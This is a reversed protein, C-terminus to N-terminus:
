GEKHEQHKNLLEDIDKKPIGNEMLKKVLRESPKGRPVHKGKIVSRSEVKGLYEDYVEETITDEVVFEYLANTEFKGTQRDYSLIESIDALRRKGDPYIKMRVALPFADVVYDLILNDSLDSGSQKYMGLIRKGFVEINDAHLTVLVQHGTISADIVAVTEAGKIEQIILTEPTFTLSANVCREMDMNDIQPKIEWMITNNLGKGNADVKRLNMEDIEACTLTRTDDAINQAISAMTATKGSNTGGYFSMSVKGKLCLLILMYGYEDLTGNKLLFDKQFPKARQKRIVMQVVPRNTMGLPGATEGVPRRAVPNSMISVRTNNGLRLRVFPTDPRIVKEAKVNQCMKQAITYLQEPSDFVKDYAYEIGNVVIRVDNYDNVRVEEYSITNDATEFILDTLFSYEIIDKYLMEVTENLTLNNIRIGEDVCYSQIIGKIRKKKEDDDNIASLIENHNDSLFATVKTRADMPLIGTTENNLSNRIRSSHEHKRSLIDPIINENM